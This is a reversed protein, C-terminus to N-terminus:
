GKISSASEMSVTSSQGYADLAEAITGALGLAGSAAIEQAVQMDFMDYFMRSANSHGLFGEPMGKRAESLMMHVVLSEFGKAAEGVTRKSALSGTDWYAPAATTIAEM